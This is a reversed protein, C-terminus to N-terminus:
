KPLLITAERLFRSISNDSTTLTKGLDNWIKGIKRIIVIKTGAPAANLLILNSGSVSFEPELAVDGEPSDQAITQDFVSLPTKRLRRGAVFVEIENISGPIMYDRFTFEKSTTSGDSIETQTIIRDSYSITEEPGQGYILTGIEYVSKVGTGLTGRRLQTLKNGVVEFYEIREGDIFVVGPINKNKNPQFIGDASELVIRIDYYNLPEALVYSNNQNLRKYHTRNLMDKFIRFGFKPSVPANGFEIVDLRDNDVPIKALKIADLTPMLVYDINPTLLKGNSAIWVYNASSTVGNLKIYGSSILNRNTWNETGEEVYTDRLVKYLTRKFNNIDHNSFQYIEVEAGSSPPIAFTLSNSLIYSVDTVTLTSENFEFIPSQTFSNRFDGRFSRVTISNNEVKKVYLNYMTSDNSSVLTIETNEFILGTVATNFTIKTDTFYYEADTIIYIELLSGAVGIDERLLRVVGMLSDFTYEEKTLQIGNVFVLVNAEDITTLDSYQWSDVTYERESTTTYSISYGPTLISDNVKVILNYALPQKNFPIPNNTEDFVHYDTEGDANFTKDIIIQSYSKLPTDYVAYQVLDGEALIGDEFTIKLRNPAPENDLTKSVIYERGSEKVEGNVTVFTSLIESWVAVTTVSNTSGDAIFYETDILNAGNVGVTMISLIKGLPLTSDNFYVTQKEYDVTYLDPNLINNDVKIIIGNASQPISPLLFETRSGDIKYNSVSIVGVGDESRHYVKLDLTDVIQGPVLEEPGKSTTPTVFGDGDVTIDASEIGTATTYQLNGGSLATDYSADSPAFSGDSTSKRIVVVDGAKTPTAEEDIVITDTIGDGIITPMVANVNTLPTSTGYNPDDLRINNLYFNYEVNKELPTSLTFISTSGDLIFIEDEYTNDFTDWPVSGYGLVGFGQENGFDISNVNVGEYKVGDMLQSLDKGAMGTTPNYYFNIRDAAHLLSINKKYNIVIQAGLAPANVFRVYGIQRTYGKSTDIDNGIVFKSSLQQIGDVFVTFSDTKLDIPWKLSFKEKAATGVFNETQELETFLYSGSIRDFKLILHASRVSGNGLIAVAKAPIGGEDQTGDIVIEPASYYKGGKNVIEIKSVRGRSLYAKATTEKNNLIRVVPTEKYKSGGDAIEISVIDYGNNDTWSKFPPQMYKDIVNQLGNNFYKVNSAEIERTVENYSPPLDFDTTLTQTPDVKEYASIYERVKTSYPKVENVYDQYNELNDNQFTVKQKLEGLNHKVRIFSTKFAWDVNPHEHFVYRLSSFFLNTYEVALDGVFISNKLSKLINKLEEVPERDYFTIDFVNADYGSNISAFDYLKTSLQITGNQRGVTKFNVTYDETPVNDIKELLLWGGTGITNIKVIEGISIDLGFLEYSQDVVHNIPTLSTYGSAYWDAYDWYRTTDFIQNDTRTWQQSSKNWEYLAWRGGIELDSKVLVTFKRVTLKTNNTYNKGGSRIYASTIQGLNNITTKIIAGSGNSDEVKITPGRRFESIGSVFGPDTYGRGPNTILVNTIKGNEIVPTLIAQETKSVGVFRLDSVTDVITDYRGSSLDPENDKTQLLSIDYNDVIQNKILVSNARDVLQKVAEIRNVFMGQRPHNLIGYKQKVSLTPDPVPKANLDYGVLSDIWKQEIDENIKASELGETLLQYETHINSNLTEDKAITFHIATNKGEIFNKVNYLAFSNENLIAAFRYGRGAPDLILQEIDFASLNRGVVRPINRKSKVWFFYKEILSNTKPDFVRKSSYVSDDNYLPQGSIGEAFGSPTDALQSWRSPLIESEVWEYVDVSATPLLTNWTSIRYQLDGQYPNYWSATDLNWWLRGVQKDDWNNTLDVVIGDVNNSNISYIAPDYFTKWSLEQDAIGAIKGQRPDIIDIYTLLDNKDLSYLFCKQIKNLNAKGTQSTIPTWSDKNKPARLDAFLGLSSDESSEYNFILSSDDTDALNLKPLGIYIHNDILKFNSIDNYKTNRNYAVDEGYIYSDGIQQFLAIRGTDKLVNIFNTYGNDFTTYNEKEKSTPDLVYKSYKIIGTETKGVMVGYIAESYRDFTTPIRRDTNKGSIALKNGYFDVGTGFSENKEEFPSRLIQHFAYLPEANVTQQRYIYVCGADVGTSDNRPAAIAIIDGLDNISVKFGFDESYDATEIYQSFKWRALNNRYISVREKLDGNGLNISGSLIIIDGLSNVDFNKGINVADNYLSSDGENDIISNIRPIYGTYEVNEDDIPIWLLSTGPLASGATINTDATYLTGSYFVIEGENYNSADDYVGKFMRDRSYTWTNEFNDLFYIRGRSVGELGPAGVFLKVLGTPTTRLEVKYGFRENSRPEPSTICHILQYSGGTIREYLYVVGQNSYGSSIGDASTEILYVPEWDQNDTTITSSDNWPAFPSVAKWLTGRDSVIDGIQYINGPELPGRYRTKANSAFPAGIALYKGNSSMAVDYGFGSFGEITDDAEIFQIERKDLSESARAYIRVIGRNFDESTTGIALVTNNNNSDFSTAFGDGDETPNILEDQLSFINENEYVGWNGNGSNDLWIRDKFENRINKINSNVDNSDVFRREVFKSVGVENSDILLGSDITDSSLVQVKNLSVAWVKFFQRVEDNNSMLGIIENKEFDVYSDFIITFGTITNGDDGVENGNILNNDFGLIKYGSKVLRVVKWDQKDDVIWVFNGVSIIAPDIDLINDYGSVVISIDSNRVYGNDSSYTKTNNNTTFPAHTYDYPKLYVDFIPIEHVLDTRTTSPSNVLEFIQPETRYKNEDIIYEIEYINDVSGYQGLRLAWEEYFELSEQDASSLADFLKTLSNKTGKEAIYGQYFKYQSVSDTIINSLYERKQYGILHQGLRQQETDFNDTDLDYFDAFQNTKYDWNPQLRSEPKKDLRNWKNADFFENSSHKINASYYFEKYKVVDGIAYDTWTSWNVVKAEDYIFGPIVLSGNWNDTRYGVLKIREQRYGPAKDYITDNFVTQNDILVVHEKQVLPLKVLYIGEEVGVPRIGFENSSDRFINSFEQSLRAGSGNVLTYDYFTDFINDVVFYDKKFQVRNAGPSVTLVTGIDWNQTVWFMFEKICLLMDELAETEKNYFNFIFGKNLLYHEYGQMFDVVDQLTKLITGYPLVSIEQEFDSRLIATVGGVIPLEALKAFKLSDFSNDSRHTVKTRYYVNNYRVVTGVPYQNEPAWNVFQESIGGVTITPDMSREIVKNYEFIPSEKDYGSIIYGTEIKEIIIGSFTATELVSSKNLIIQYNEDPVFVSTKNLPSRSDLVLKLKSKDAFGGIKVALQNDINKLQNKYVSYNATTKSSMYSSIYNVLGATLTLPEDTSISPFILDKTNIRKLTDKYVLNGVKDRIIRAYDFAIGIVKAPQILTWATILAFPYESSRRWATEVPSHDGFVFNQKSQLLIFDQALGSDLPSILQGYENVPIFELLRPREYKKNRIISKGPERIIGDALDRWLVLNDKTYPAPGYVQEWWTPKVFFGLMEWPHTHPRDTDFYEKYINRWFGQLPLGTRSSMNSYNYTFSLDQNWWSHDSYNPTGALELWQAFDSIMASDIVSKKIGTNRYVSGVFDSIDLKNVDYSVKINNFIRKELELILDDRYDNFAITLSGDHGQIVTQPQSYTDDVYIAPEFKPYLGLKTPTPPINSGTTSEYEYIEVIDGVNLDLTVYVFNDTFTYDREHLLQTGNLYVGVAKISLKNLSFESSLAFYAPGTYDVTHLTKKSAGFGIMDGFYFSKLGINEKSIKDIILDFHTKVPGVFGSNEAELLFKRKFKAYEKRAYKLGKIVNANKDTIHYIALDLPGSHQVFRKGYASTNGLDRLNGFGPFDGVFGPIDEIISNVHDNVEGLTFTTINENLPNKELNIPIEYFGNSNKELNSFAKILVLDGSTLESNFKVFMETNLTLITFDVNEKQYKSNLYVKVKLSTDSTINNFMDLKFLTQKSESTFYRIVPQKSNEVAKTWGNVYVFETGANNYKKLYGTDTSITTSVQSDAQYTITDTLLNFDFVIDGVNSINRYSLAFGLESDPSGSGIRYSFVKNGSFNSSPYYTSDGYSYGNVDFLDFTPFQNVSTKEQSPLWTSNSYYFMKGKCTVGNTILVVDNEEPQSDETELLTIQRRGNHVIFKVEYIKGNVMKDPDASFIVRMGDVLDVGDVNYGLSGEVKSFADVTYTDILTVNQKAKTGHKWLKIGADFEIIPRKARAMEDINVPLKNAIFSKEIVDKHFWRNYRSWPNRDASARNIVIYDKTGPFSTADEFPFIDFGNDDFPVSYQQTFIAPVELSNEAILQISEGVGEVYWYGEGYISPIVSGQFYVRMGNSLEIGNSTKYTKKGVLEQTVNIETNETIEFITVIGSTNIDNKSVYYLTDPADDPITFEIVGNEVYDTESVIGKKYLINENVFNENLSLDTDVFNRRTAFAMPHGPANIEFKYTQGKFLKLTPNKTLGNPTFVYTINDDQDSITVTYTSVIERSQGAIGIPTPGIPLWYYERFNVFKDWNIHPNWAYFEQSNLLSHNSVSGKFSDIQGILDNYDKFFEVNNLEDKYVVAPEFQYNERSATVDPLYIDSSTAAKSYRRGAFANVKEVVGPAIMQDLTSGIFKKNTDTRFYKPLFNISSTNSADGAPLPFDAQDKEYAM